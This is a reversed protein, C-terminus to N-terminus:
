FATLLFGLGSLLSPLASLLSSCLLSCLLASLVLYRCTRVKIGQGRCERCPVVKAGGKGKCPECILSKSLRLKKEGGTYLDALTVKLRFLVDKGKRQQRQGGGRRGGGGGGGFFSSFIDGHDQGGGGGAELGKEGYQDYVQRKEDDSLVQAL